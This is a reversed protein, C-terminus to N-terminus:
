EELYGLLQGAVPGSVKKVAMQVAEAYTIHGARANQTIEGVISGTKRDIVSLAVTARAFEWGPNKLEVPNVVVMGTILVDAKDHDNSILFGSGALAESLRERIKKAYDGNIDICILMQSKLVPIMNFVSRINYSPTGKRTFGLVRLRSVIVERQLWSKLIKKLAMYREFRSGAKNLVQYEGEISSDINRIESQWNDGARSRDLVALAYYVGKGKDFWTRDVQVGKLEMDSVVRINSEISQESVENGSGKVVSKVRDMTDSYVRSEFIRSIGAVAQNRAESESRGIGTATLYQSSPYDAGSYEKRADHACGSILFSIISVYIIKRLM